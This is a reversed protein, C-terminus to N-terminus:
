ITSLILSEIRRLKFSSVTKEAVHICMVSVSLQSSLVHLAPYCTARSQRCARSLFLLVSSEKRRNEGRAHKRERAYKRGERTKGGRPHEKLKTRNLNCGRQM